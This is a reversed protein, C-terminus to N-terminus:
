KKKEKYEKWTELVYGDGKATAIYAPAGVHLLYDLFKVQDPRVKDPPVKVEVVCFVPLGGSREFGFLDPFGKLGRLPGFDIIADSTLARAKGQRM